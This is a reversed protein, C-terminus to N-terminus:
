NIELGIMYADYFKGNIFFERTITGEIVFGKKKYLHIASTNDVRVKLNIKRIIESEKAWNIFYDLLLNGIGKNWYDRSVSIGFEGIHQIRPRKGGSFNLSGVIEGKIEAILYIANGTKLIDGLFAKEDMNSMTFEGEGFTLNDSEGAIKKIYEILKESDEVHANRIILNNM